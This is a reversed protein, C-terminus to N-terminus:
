SWNSAWQKPIHNADYLSNKREQLRLKVSATENKITSLETKWPLTASGWM